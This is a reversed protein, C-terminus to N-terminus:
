LQFVPIDSPRYQSHNTHMRNLKVSSDFLIIKLQTFVDCIM